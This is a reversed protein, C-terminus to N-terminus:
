ASPLGGCRIESLLQRSDIALPLLRQHKDLVEELSPGDHIIIDGPSFITRAVHWGDARMYVAVEYKRGAVNLQTTHILIGSEMAGGLPLSNIKALSLGQILLDWAL